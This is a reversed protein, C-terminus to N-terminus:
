LQQIRYDDPDFPAKEEDDSPVTAMHLAMALADFGDVTTEDDPAEGRWRRGGSTMRVVAALVQKALKEDGDHELKQGEVYEGLRM